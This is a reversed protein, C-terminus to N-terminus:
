ETFPEQRRNEWQRARWLRDQMEAEAQQRDAEELRRLDDISVLAFVPTRCRTILLRDETARHHALCASLTDRFKAVPLDIYM